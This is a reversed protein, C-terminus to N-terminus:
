VELIDFQEGLPLWDTSKVAISLIAAQKDSYDIVRRGGAVVVSSSGNFSLNKEPGTRNCVYLCLGTERSRQEWEGNPQHLGPAWAAPSILVRAGQKALEAGIDPTYADSCILLGIKHGKWVIPRIDRGPSAWGESGPLVNIKYHEGVVQGREDIFIAANYYQSTAQSFRPSGIIAAVHNARALQCFKDLTEPIVEKIWDAGLEKFFEYGSVALEPMVIIDPGAELAKLFLGELLEVNHAVNNHKLAAHLMSLRITQSTM